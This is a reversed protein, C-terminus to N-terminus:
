TVFIVRGGNNKRTALHLPNSETSHPGRLQDMDLPLDTGVFVVAVTGPVVSAALLGVVRVVAALGAVTVLLVRGVAPRGVALLGAALLVVALLVVALLGAATVGRATEAAAVL